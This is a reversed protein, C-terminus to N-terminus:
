ALIVFTLVLYTKNSLCLSSSLLNLLRKFLAETASFFYLPNLQLHGQFPAGFRSLYNLSCCTRRNYRYLICSNPDTLATHISNVLSIIQLYKILNIDHPIFSISHYRPYITRAEIVYRNHLHPKKIYFVFAEIFICLSVLLHSGRLIAQM